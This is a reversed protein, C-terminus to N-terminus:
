LISLRKVFFKNILFYLVIFSGLGILLAWITKAQIIVFFFAVIGLMTFYHNKMMYFMHIGVNQPVPIIAYLAIFANLLALHRFMVSGYTVSIIMLMFAFIISTMIGSSLIWFIERKNEAFYRQGHFIRENVKLNVEGPFFIPIFGYIIFSILFGGLIGGISYNYKAIYGKGIAVFKIGGIFLFLSIFTGIGLFIIDKVAKATTYDTTRWIFMFMIVIIIIATIVYERTEKKDFHFNRKLRSVLSM